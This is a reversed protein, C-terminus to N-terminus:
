QPPTRPCFGSASNRRGQEAAAPEGRQRAVEPVALEVAGPQHLIELVLVRRVREPALLVIEIGLDVGLCRAIEAELLPPAAVDIQVGLFDLEDDIFQEDAVVKGGAAILVGSPVAISRRLMREGITTNQEFPSLM